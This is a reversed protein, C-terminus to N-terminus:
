FLSLSPVPSSVFYPWFLMVQTTETFTCCSTHPWLDCSYIWMSCPLTHITSLMLLCNIWKSNFSLAMLAEFLRHSTIGSILFGMIRSAPTLLQLAAGGQPSEEVSCTVILLYNLCTLNDSFDTSIDSVGWSPLTNIMNIIVIIVWPGTQAHCGKVGVCLKPVCPTFLSLLVGRPSTVCCCIPRAAPSTLDSGRVCWRLFTLSWLVRRHFLFWKWLM